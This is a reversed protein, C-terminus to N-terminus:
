SELVDKEDDIFLIYGFREDIECSIEESGTPIWGASTNGTGM